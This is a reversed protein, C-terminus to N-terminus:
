GSPCSSVKKKKKIIFIGRQCLPESSYAGFLVEFVELQKSSLISIRPKRSQHRNVVNGHVQPWRSRQFHCLCACFDRLLLLLCVLREAAAVGVWCWILALSFPVRGVSFCAHARSHRYSHPPSVLLPPCGEIKLFLELSNNQFCDFPGKEGHFGSCDELWCEVM